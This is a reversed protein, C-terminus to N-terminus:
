NETQPLGVVHGNAIEDVTVIDRRDVPCSVHKFVCDTCVGNCQHLIKEKENDTCIILM